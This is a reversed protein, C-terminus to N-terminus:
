SKRMAEAIATHGRHELEAALNTRDQAHKNQSLKSKGIINTITIEIGVIAKLMAAIYDPPADSMSWPSEPQVKHEHTHTLHELMARLSNEDEIFKIKGYVHVAQYNWTPVQRHTEHKSPYWNPSVYADLGRFIVLVEDNSTTERWIPNAKAVHALLTAYGSKNTKIDFPLHNAELGNTGHTVLTGLPHTAIIDLLAQPLNEAFHPPIYM